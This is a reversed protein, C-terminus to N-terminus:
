KSRRKHMLSERRKKAYEEAENHADIRHEVAKRGTEVTTGIGFSVPLVLRATQVARLTTLVARGSTHAIIGRTLRTAHPALFGTGYETGVDLLGSVGVGILFDKREKKDHLNVGYVFSGHNSINSFKMTVLNGAVATGTAMLLKGPLKLEM